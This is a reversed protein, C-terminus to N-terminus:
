ILPVRAPTRRPRMQVRREPFPRPEDQEIVATPAAASGDRLSAQSLHFGRGPHHDTWIPGTRTLRILLHFAQVPLEKHPLEMVGSDFDLDALEFPQRM